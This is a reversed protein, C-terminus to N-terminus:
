ISVYAYMLQHFLVSLVILTSTEVHLSDFRACYHKISYRTCFALYVCSCVQTHDYYTKIVRKQDSDSTDYRKVLRSTDMLKISADISGTVAFLGVFGYLTLFSLIYFNHM